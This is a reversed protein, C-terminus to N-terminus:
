AKTERPARSVTRKKTRPTPTRPAPANRKAGKSQIANAVATLAENSFELDDVVRAIVVAGVLSAYLAIARERRLSASRGQVIESLYNIFPKLEETVTHRTVSGQRAIESGLAAIPCGRGANDRHKAALYENALTELPDSSHDMTRIWNDRMRTVARRCAQAVLDDKSKFHGYFGGHTLGASKMLDAVGIGDIGRERFLRTAVDLIRERNEAAKARSVRM